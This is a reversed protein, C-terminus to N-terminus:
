FRAASIDQLFSVHIFSGYTNRVSELRVRSPKKLDNIQKHSTRQLRKQKEHMLAIKNHMTHM